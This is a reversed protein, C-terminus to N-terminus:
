IARKNRRRKRDASERSLESDLPPRDGRAIAAERLKQRTEESVRRGRNRQSLRQSFEPPRKKGRNAEARNQIAEPTPKSRKIGDRLKRGKTSPPRGAVPNQNFDYSWDVTHDLHWQERELLYNPDNVVELIEFAFDTAGHKQWSRQLHDNGHAGRNLASAHDCMRRLFNNTSGVYRRGSSLQRWQYIGATQPVISTDM